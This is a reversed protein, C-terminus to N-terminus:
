AQVWGECSEQVGEEGLCAEEQQYYAGQAEDLGSEKFQRFDERCNWALRL